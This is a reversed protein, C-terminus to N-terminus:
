PNGVKSRQWVAGGADSLYIWGEKGVAAFGKSGRPTVGYIWGYTISPEIKPVMFSKGGDLSTLLSRNGGIVINGRDSTIGFLQTGPFNGEVQQWTKGGDITKSVYGDIGAAWATMPDIAFIDFLTNEGVLVFDEESMGFYGAQHEWTRGGDSTHYIYGYEGSVWGNLPDCFSVSKLIYDAETYQVQWNAGGDETYLITTWETVVWGKQANVFCVGMLYYDVPCEQKLWTKGGDETHIITGGAGVAWGNQSDAFSIACLTYDTGSDQRGWSKGGDETHM